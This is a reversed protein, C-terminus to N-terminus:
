SLLTQPCDPDITGLNGPDPMKTSHPCPWIKMAACTHCPIDCANTSPCEESCSAHCSCSSGTEDPNGTNCTCHIHVAHMTCTPTICTTGSLLPTKDSGATHCNHWKPCHWSGQCQMWPHTEMCLPIHFWQQHTSSLQEMTPHMDCYCSGFRKFPTTHQLQNVLMCHHLHKATNTLRHRLLNLAHTVRSM